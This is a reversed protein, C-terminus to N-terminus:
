TALGLKAALYGLEFQTKCHLKNKINEVHKEVTRPSAQLLIAIEPITRGTILSKLCALEKETLYAYDYAPGLYLREIPKIVKEVTAFQDLNFRQQEVRHLIRKTKEYFLNVFQKLEDLENYIKGMVAREDEATGFNFYDCGGSFKCVLTVGYKINFITRSDIVVPDVDSLATWLVYDSTIPVSNQEFAGLGPYNNNLYHELWDRNDCLYIVAGDDYRRIFNLINYNFKQFFNQCIQAIDKHFELSPHNKFKIGNSAKKM